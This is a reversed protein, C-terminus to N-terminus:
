ATSASAPSCSRRSAWCHRWGRCRLNIGFGPSCRRTWRPSNWSPFELTSGPSWIASRRRWRAARVRRASTSRGGLATRPLRPSSRRPNVRLSRDLAAGDFLETALRETVIAVEPMDRWEAEVFDRGAVVDIELIRFLDGAASGGVVMSPRASPDAGSDVFYDNAFDFGTWLLDRGTLGAAEVGPLRRARDLLAAYFANSENISFRLEELDFSALLLRDPNTVPPEFMSDM